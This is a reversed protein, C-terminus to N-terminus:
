PRDIPAGAIFQPERDGLTTVEILGGGDVIYAVTQSARVHAALGVIAAGIQHPGVAGIAQLLQDVLEGDFAKVQRM